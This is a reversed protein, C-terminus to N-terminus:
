STIVFDDIEAIHFLYVKKEDVHYVSVNGSQPDANLIRCPVSLKVGKGKVVILRILSNNQKFKQFQDWIAQHSNETDAHPAAGPKVSSAAAPKSPQGSGSSQRSPLKNKQITERLATEISKGLQIGEKILYDQIEATNLM